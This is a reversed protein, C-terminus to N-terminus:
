IKAKTSFPNIILLTNEVRQEHQLDESYLTNCGAEIASAVIQCDWYSFGYRARIQLAHRVTEVTVSQVRALNILSNLNGAIIREPIRHKAMANFYEALVQTSLAWGDLKGLLALAQAHRPEDPSELHAYVLINTDVFPAASM